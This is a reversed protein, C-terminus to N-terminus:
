DALHATVDFGYDSLDITASQGTRPDTVTFVCSDDAAAHTRNFNNVWMDAAAKIPTSEGSDCEWAVRWDNGSAEPDLPPLVPQGAKRYSSAPLRSPLQGANLEHQQFDLWLWADEGEGGIAIVRRPDLAPNDAKEVIDGVRIQNDQQARDAEIAAAVCANLAPWTEVIPQGDPHGVEEASDQYTDFHQGTTEAAIQQPTKM